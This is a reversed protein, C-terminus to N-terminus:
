LIKKVVQFVRENVTGPSLLVGEEICTIKKWNTQSKVIEEAAQHAAQQHTSSQEAQDQAGEAYRKTRHSQAQKLLTMTFSTPVSLYVILDPKPVELVEYEMKKLWRILEKREKWNACKSGQHIMNSSTYRDTIVIYGEKIWTQIQAASERRDCAYLVSAVQPDVALFDGHKGALCEAILKGFLNKYYRPFDISKVKKGEKKLKKLLLAVQTAKGSGDTGDIVILKGKQTKKSGQKKVM